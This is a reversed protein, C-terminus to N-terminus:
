FMYGVRANVSFGNRVGIYYKGGMGINFSGVNVGASKRSYLKVADKDFGAEIVSTGGKIVPSEMVMNSHKANSATGRAEGNLEQEYAYGLFISKYKSRLGVVARSSMMNAFHIEEKTDLIVTNGQQLTALYKVYETFSWNNKNQVLGAGMHGGYYISSINYKADPSYDATYNTAVYGGRISSDLYMSGFVIKGLLGGGAYTNDGNGKVVSKDFRNFTNHKGGGGEIFIGYLSSNIKHGVGLILSASQTNVYSGSNLKVSNGSVASFMGSRGYFLASDLANIGSDAILDAGQILVGLSSLNGELLSKTAPNLYGAGGGNGGGGNGGGNGGGGGTNTDKNIVAYLNNNDVLIDWDYLMTAGARMTGGAQDITTANMNEVLWIKDGVNLQTSSDKLYLGVTTNSMNIASDSASLMANGANAGEITFNYNDFGAASLVVINTSLNLTNGSITGSNEAYGGFINANSLDSSGSINITNNAVTANPANTSAYGGYINGNIVVGEISVINGSAEGNSGNVYGGAINAGIFNSDKIEVTNNIVQNGGYGGYIGTSNSASTLNSLYVSNSDIVSNTNTTHGGYVINIAGSKIYVHNDIVTAIGTGEYEGGYIIRIYTNNSSENINIVNREVRSDGSCSNCKGAFLVGIGTLNSATINITNGIIDESTNSQAGHFTSDSFSLNDTNLNVTNNIPAFEFNPYSGSGLNAYVNRRSSISDTIDLINGGAALATSISFLFSLILYYIKV